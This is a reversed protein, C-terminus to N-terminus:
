GPRLAQRVRQRGRRVLVGALRRADVERVPRDAVARKDAGAAPGAIGGALMAGLIAQAAAEVPILPAAPGNGAGADPQGAPPAPSSLASLDGIVRVGLAAINGTMEASIEAVRELAWAPTAIQPEGPLPRRAKMQRVAGYRMFKAYSAGPWERRKFEENLQRVVEAEALTLSRNMVEDAPVLLGAPLGLLSEFTRLLALRDPGDVVIVTVNHVGAAAAWRAILKDHRHRQWFLPTGAM